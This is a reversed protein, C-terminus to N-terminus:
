AALIKHIYSRTYSYLLYIMAPTSSLKSEPLLHLRLPLKWGRLAGAAELRSVVNTKQTSFFPHFFVCLIMFLMFLNLVHNGFPSPLLLNVAILCHWPADEAHVYRDVNNGVCDSVYPLGYMTPAKSGCRKFDEVTRKYNMLVTM